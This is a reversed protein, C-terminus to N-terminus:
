EGGAARTPGPHKRGETRRHSIRQLTHEPPQTRLKTLSLRKSKFLLEFVTERSNRSTTLREETVESSSLDLRNYSACLM